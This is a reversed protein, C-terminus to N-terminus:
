GRDPENAVSEDYSVPEAVNETAFDSIMWHVSGAMRQAQIGYYQNTVRNGMLHVNARELDDLRIGASAPQFMGSSREIGEVVNDTIHLRLARAQWVEIGTRSEFPHFQGKTLTISNGAIHFAGRLLKTHREDQANFVDVLLGGGVLVNDMIHVRTRHVHPEELAEDTESTATRDNVSHATDLYALSYWNNATITNDHIFVEHWRKTHDVMEHEHSSGAHMHSDDGFGSSHHHGHLRADVYGYITNYAFEAGNFGDFNVAQTDFQWLFSGRPYGVTNHIFKGDFHRLQGVVDFTNREIVGSTPAGTREVNENVRLDSIDNNRVLVRDGIWNLVLQGRISNNEIRVAKSTDRIEIHHVDWGSIVYPDKTTGRGSVVGNAKTFGANKTIVIDERQTRAGDARAAM